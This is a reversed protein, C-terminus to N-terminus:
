NNKASRIKRQHTIPNETTNALRARSKSWDRLSQISERMVRSLPVINTFAQELGDFLADKALQEIESGSWGAMKEAYAEPINNSYRRNMIQIIEKREEPSPLDVFFIADFRGARLFEPPLKQCMM